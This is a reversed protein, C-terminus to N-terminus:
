GSDMAVYTRLLFAHVALVEFFAFFFAAFLTQIEATAPYAGRVRAPALARRQLPM